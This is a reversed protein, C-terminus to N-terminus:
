IFVCVCESIYTFVHALYGFLCLYEPFEIMLLVTKATYEPIMSQFSFPLVGFRYIM